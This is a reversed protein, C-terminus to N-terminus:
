VEKFDKGTRLIQAFSNLLESQEIETAVKEVDYPVRVFHVNIIDTFELIGYSARNDGDKPRGVSGPNIFLKDKVYKFYPYHTHGFLIIDEDLNEAIEEQKELESEYVYDNISFPSGHTLLLRFEEVELVLQEELDRLFSKNIDTTNEVTWHLSNQTKIRDNESEITCGCTPLFFGVAEDYNGLITQIGNKRITDIVENPRPGYGVLDGLCYIHRSEILRDSLDKLVSNLAEINGHIDSIIAIKKGM